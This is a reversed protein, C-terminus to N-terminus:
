PGTYKNETDDDSALMEDPQFCGSLDRMAALATNLAKIHQLRKLDGKGGAIMELGQRAPLAETYDLQKKLLANKKAM